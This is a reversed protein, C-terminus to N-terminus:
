PIHCQTGGGDSEYDSAVEPVMRAPRVNLYWHEGHWLAVGNSRRLFAVYDSPLARWVFRELVAIEEDSAGESRQEWRYAAGESTDLWTDDRM